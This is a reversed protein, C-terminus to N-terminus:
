LWCRLILESVSLNIKVCRKPTQERNRALYLNVLYLMIMDCPIKLWGFSTTRIGPWHQCPLWDSPHPFDNRYTIILAFYGIQWEMICVCVSTHACVSLDGREFSRRHRLTCPTTQMASILDNMFGGPDCKRLLLTLPFCPHSPSCREWVRILTLCNNPNPPPNIQRILSSPPRTRTRLTFRSFLYSPPPVHRALHPSPPSPPRHGTANKDPRHKLRWPSPRVSCVLNVTCPCSTVKDSAREQEKEKGWAKM